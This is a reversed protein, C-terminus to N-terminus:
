KLIHLEKCYDFHYRSMNSIGGEKKCYPCTVKKQPGKPKKMKEKCADSKSIGKMTSPVGKKSKSINDSWEQTRLPRKKGRMSDYQIKRAETIEFVMNKNKEAMLVSLKQRFEATLNHPKHPKHKIGTLSKRRKEITDISQKYGKKSKSIKNKTEASHTLGEKAEQYARSSPKYRLKSKGPASCMMRFSYQVSKNNPYIRYLLWHCIFHERATLEVLNETDNTGGMCKPIIHHREKYGELIRAKGKEIIQDYVKKYNM